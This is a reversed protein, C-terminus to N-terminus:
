GSKPSPLPLTNNRTTKVKGRGGGVLTPTGVTSVPRPPPPGAFKTATVNKGTEKSGKGKTKEVGLKSTAALSKKKTKPLSKASSVIVM